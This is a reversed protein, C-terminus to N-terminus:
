SNNVLRTVFKFVIETHLTPRVPTQEQLVERVARKHWDAPSLDFGFVECHVKITRGKRRATATPATSTATEATSNEFHARNLTPPDNLNISSM